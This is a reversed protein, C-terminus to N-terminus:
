MFYLLLDYWYYFMYTLIIRLLCYVLNFIRADCCFIIRGVLSMTSSLTFFEGFCSACLYHLQLGCVLYVSTTYSSLLTPGFHRKLSLHQAWVLLNVPLFPWVQHYTLSLSPITWILYSTPSLLLLVQHILYLIAVLDTFSSIEFSVSLVISDVLFCRLDITILIYYMVINAPASSFFIGFFLHNGCIKHYSVYVSIYFCNM